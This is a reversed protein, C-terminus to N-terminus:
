KNDAGADAQWKKDEDDFNAVSQGAVGSTASRYNMSMKGLSTSSARVGAANAAFNMTSGRAIGISASVGYSDINAGLFVFKWAYTKEQHEVMQKIQAQSYVKSANEQGDTMIVCLVRDPRQDEPLAELQTGTEKIGTGIADFMATFGDPIYNANVVLKPADSLPAIRNVWHWENNFLLMSISAQGPLKKQEDVYNNTTTCTEQAIVSMSGSRDLILLIHTYGQKM